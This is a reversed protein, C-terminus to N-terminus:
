IKKFHNFNIYDNKRDSSVSYHFKNFFNYNRINDDKENEESKNLIKDENLFDDSTKNLSFNLSISNKSNLQIENSILVCYETKKRIFDLM